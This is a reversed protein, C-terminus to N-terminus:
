RAIEMIIQSGQQYLAIKRRHDKEREDDFHPHEKGDGNGLDVDQVEMDHGGRYRYRSNM